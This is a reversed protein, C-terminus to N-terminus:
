TDWVSILRYYATLIFNGYHIPISTQSERGSESLPFDLLGSSHCEAKSPIDDLMSISHLCHQHEYRM